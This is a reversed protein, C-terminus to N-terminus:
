AFREPYREAAAQGDIVALRPAGGGHYESQPYTLEWLRGDGPDRYLCSWLDDRVSLQEFYSDVLCAVRPASEIVTEEAGPSTLERDMM